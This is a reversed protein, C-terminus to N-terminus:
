DVAEFSTNVHALSDQLDNLDDDLADMSTRVGSISDSAAIFKSYNEYVLTQLDGDLEKTEKFLKNNEMILEGLTMQKTLKNLYQDANFNPSDL